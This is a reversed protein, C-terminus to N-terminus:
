KLDPTSAGLYTQLDRVTSRVIKARTTALGLRKHAEYRHCGGFSYYYNGGERGKVWLVDIPPVENRRSNDKLTEMLSAVKAEDLVPAIPRILINMPIDHVEGIHASHVSFDDGRGNSTQSDKLRMGCDNGGDKQGHDGALLRVYDIDWKAKELLLCPWTTFFDGLYGTTPSTSPGGQGANTETETICSPHRTTTPGLENTRLVLPPPAM